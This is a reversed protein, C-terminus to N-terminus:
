PALKLFKACVNEIKYQEVDEIIYQRSYNGSLFQDVALTDLNNTTISLIPKKVIAFDILKSPTQKPGGNDFNVVFDMTCLASLLQQRPIYNQVVIRGAGRKLYPAVVEPKNTYIYFKFDSPLNVLYELLESPDRRGQIFTGPYAFTPVANVATAKPLTIENFDFGQSIVKIKHHFEPYYGNISGVTPVTLFDAKKCFWKEVYKFYFPKRFTDSEEGMYPDGCDAVWVTAIRHKPTRAKAVGWHIPFPVAISILLDYGLENRLARNTMGLYQIAPYELLLGSLRAALRTIINFPGGGKTSIPKWKPQGMDKIVLNHQKEFQPHVENNKPTVVVVDHGERAFEKALETARNARPSNAPFFTSAVILIKKRDM